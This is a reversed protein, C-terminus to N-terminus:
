KVLHSWVLWQKFANYVQEAEKSDPAIQEGRVFFGSESIRLYEEGEINFTINRDSTVALIPQPTREHSEHFVYESVITGEEQAIIGINNM